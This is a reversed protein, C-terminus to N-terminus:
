VKQQSAALRAPSSSRLPSGREQLAQSSAATAAMAARVRAQGPSEAEGRARSGATCFAHGQAGCSSFYAISYKISHHVYNCPQLSTLLHLLM